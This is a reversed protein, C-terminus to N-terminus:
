SQAGSQNARFLPLVDNRVRHTLRHYRDRVLESLLDETLGLLRLVHLEVLAITVDVTTSMATMRLTTTVGSHAIENRGKTAAWAWSQAEAVESGAMIESSGQGCSVAVAAHGAFMMIAHDGLEDILRHLRQRLNPRNQVSERVFTTYQHLDPHQALADRLVQRLRAFDPEPLLRLEHGRRTRAFLNEAATTAAILRTEWPADHNHAAVLSVVTGRLEESLQAWRPLVKEFPLHAQTFLMEHQDVVPADHHAVPLSLRRLPLLPNMDADRAQDINELVFPLAPRLTTALLGVERRVALGVLGRLTTVHGLLTDLSARQPTTICAVIVETTEYTSGSARDHRVQRIDSHLVVTTGDLL